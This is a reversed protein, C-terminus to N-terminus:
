SLSKIIQSKLIPNTVYLYKYQKIISYIMVIIAFVNQVKLENQKAFRYM